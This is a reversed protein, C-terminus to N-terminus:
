HTAVKKLDQASTVEVPTGHKFDLLRGGYDPLFEGHTLRPAWQWGYTTWVRWPYPAVKWPLHGDMGNFTEAQAYAVPNAETSFIGPAMFGLPKRPPQQSSSNDPRKRAAAIVTYERWGVWPMHPSFEVPGYQSTLAHHFWGTSPLHTALAAFVGYTWWKQGEGVLMYKLQPENYWSTEPAKPKKGKKPKLQKKSPARGLLEWLTRV